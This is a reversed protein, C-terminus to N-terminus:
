LFYSFEKKDGNDEHVLMLKYGAKRENVLYSLVRIADKMLESLSNAEVEKQLENLKPVSTAPFTIHFRASRKGPKARTKRRAFTDESSVTSQQETM